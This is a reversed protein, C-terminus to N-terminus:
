FAYEELTYVTEWLAGGVSVTADIRCVLYDRAPISIGYRDVAVTVMDDLGLTQQLPLQNRLTMAPRTHADKYLAIVAAAIPPCPDGSGSVNELLPSSIDSGDSRGHADVSDADSAYAIGPRSTVSTTGGTSTNVQVTGPTVRQTNIIAQRDIDLSDFGSMTNDIVAAASKGALNAYSRARYRFYPSDLVPDVWHRTQSVANVAELISKASGTSANDVAHWPEADLQAFAPEFPLLAAGPYVMAWEVLLANGPTGGAPICIYLAVDARNATPTWTGSVEVWGTADVAASASAADSPTGTSGIGVRWTEPGGTGLMIRAAFTYAENAFFTRTGFSYQSGSNASASPYINAHWGDTGMTRTIGLYPAAAFPAAGASWTAAPSYNEFGPDPLLNGTMTGLGPGGTASYAHAARGVTWQVNDILATGTAVINVQAGEFATVAGIGSSVILMFSMRTWSAPFTFAQPVGDSTCSGSGDAALLGVTGDTSGSVWKADFSINVVDGYALHADRLRGRIYGAAIQACAAGTGAHDTTVRTVGTGTWGTLDTEFSPNFDCLNRWGAGFANLTDVRIERWTRHMKPLAVDVIGMAGLADYATVEVTWNASPSVRQVWGYFHAYVSNSTIRVAKGPVLLPCAVPSFAGTSNDLTFSASGTAAASFDASRGRTWKVGSGARISTTIDAWTGDGNWDIQVRLTGAHDASAAGFAEASAIGGVGSLTVAGPTVSAAGFAEASAIGGVGSLTPPAIAVTWAAWGSASSITYASPDEAAAAATSKQDSGVSVASTASWGDVPISYGTPRTGASFGANAEVAIWLFDDTTGPTLSPPDPNVSSGTAAGFAPAVSSSAGSIRYSTHASSATGSLTVSLTAGESGSAVKTFGTLLKSTGFVTPAGSLLAWGTPTTATASSDVTLLVLLRDGAAIGAPLNVTHPSATANVWGSNTAQVTPTTM